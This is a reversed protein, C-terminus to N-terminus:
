FAHLSSATVQLSRPRGRDAESRSGVDGTAGAEDHKVFIMKYRECSARAVAPIGNVFDPIKREGFDTIRNSGMNGKM